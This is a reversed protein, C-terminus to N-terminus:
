WHHGEVPFDPDIRSGVPTADLCVFRGKHFVLPARDPSVQMATVRGVFIIHDGAEIAQEVHTAFIACAERAVPLGDVEPLPDVLSTSPRGAFHMATAQTGDPLVSVAYRKSSHIYGLMKATRAVSIAVLPPDLSISMFANATMGHHVDGLRTTVVTVGTAFGGCANRFAIPDIVDTQALTAPNPQDM